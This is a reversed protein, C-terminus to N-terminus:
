ETVTQVVQLDKVGLEFGGPIGPARKDERVVGTVVLSSELTVKQAAALIEPTVDKQFVVAQVIGTGDRVQLFRLKGKDTKNYLWGQLTVEEGVYRAVDQIRVIGMM